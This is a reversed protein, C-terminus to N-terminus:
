KTGHHRVFIRAENLTEAKLRILLLFNMISATVIYAILWGYMAGRVGWALVLLLGITLTVGSSAIFAYFVKNPLELALLAAGSITVLAGMIPIIGTLWLLGIFESYNGLYIFHIIPGGFLGLLLWYITAGLVFFVSMFIVLHNFAPSGKKDVLVPLLITGLATTVNVMPLILNLLAKYAASAELGWWIPLFIMFVNSPIWALGATGLSWRGYRWHDCFVDRRLQTDNNIKLHMGLKYLLWLGSLLSAIGMLLLTSAPDLWEFHNLSVAGLFILVMYGAGSIAALQPQLNIYCARRMLWQFLVFPSSISLGFFAPALRSNTFCSTTIYSLFFLTGVIVGFIWHGYLLVQVYAKIKDKYKGPGFVLMPENLLASHFTGFLLFITYTVGFAGYETPSLWRALLINLTFNSLSVLGQDM